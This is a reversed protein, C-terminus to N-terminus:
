QVSTLSPQPLPLTRRYVIDAKVTAVAPTKMGMLHSVLLAVTMVCLSEINQDVSTLEPTSFLALKSNSYGVVRLSDPVSIGSSAAYKLAGVALEDETAFLGDFKLGNNALDAIKKGVERIDTACEQIYENRLPLNSDSLAKKYGEIKQRESYTSSYHLMLLDRSGSAILAKTANYAGDFDDCCSSFVNPVNDLRGNILWVPTTQAAQLICLNNKVNSEIFFSGIIIISDVRRDLMAQISREKELMNYGVCYLLSDFNQKRLERQVFGIAFQLSPCAEPDAPDVCLIGVTRMTDLGLGRAFANPTYNKERIVAMVKERTKETVNPNGNLVRSVTAVSVNALKSIDHITM